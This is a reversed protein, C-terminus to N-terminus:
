RMRQGVAASTLRVPGNGRPPPHELRAELRLREERERLYKEKWVERSKRLDRVTITLSRMQKRYQHARERWKDRHTQFFRILKHKPSKFKPPAEM